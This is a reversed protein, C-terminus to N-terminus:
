LTDGEVLRRYDAETDVDLLLREDHWPMYEVHYKSFIARGGVDGELAMLEPFTDRDFLVPNARREMMVLPAVIPVLRAAHVDVLAAIVDFTVQPQDALLFVASGVSPPLSRLGARISTAQGSDWDKNHVMSVPLGALAAEVAAAESGTVVVVPDLGAALASQAVARVFPVGHWDLVQKSRGLRRSAGAALVIGAAREHVAHVGGAQLSAVLVADYGALLRNAMSRSQAQLEAGDGQNLLALRRAHSPINKLGGEPHMFVRTVAEPTIPDGPRLGSLAAFTEPRHVIDDSLPKGLAALGAVVVVIDAFDPIAPEHLAPAKLPMQRSGDAEILLPLNRKRATDHLWLLSDPSAPGFRDDLTPAGTVVILGRLPLEQLGVASEAVIHQDALPVQWAGIHTTTTLLVPLSLERALQFM